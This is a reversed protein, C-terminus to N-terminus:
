AEMAEKQPYVIFVGLAKDADRAKQLRKKSRIYDFLSTRKPDSFSIDSDSLKDDSM